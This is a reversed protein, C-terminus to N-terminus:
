SYGRGGSQERWPAHDVTDLLPMCYMLVGGGREGERGGEIRDLQGKLDAPSHCSPAKMLSAASPVSITPTVPRTAKRSDVEATVLPAPVAPDPHRRVLPVSNQASFRCACAERPAVKAVVMSQFGSVKTSEM